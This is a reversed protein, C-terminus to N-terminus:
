GVALTFRNKEKRCIFKNTEMVSCTEIWGCEILYEPFILLLGVVACELAIYVM